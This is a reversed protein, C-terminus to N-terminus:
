LVFWSKQMDLAGKVKIVGEATKDSDTNIYVYTDKGAKEYRVQGAKTFADKGIFSFAQDGKKKMDSDILKLDIKDGGRGSFDTITDATAKSAGTDKNAFAFVDKGSGGSLLDKGAGGLIRDNGIGGDVKDNGAGANLVNNGGGGALTDTSAGGSLTDGATSGVTNENLVDNLVVTLDFTLSKQLREDIAQVKIVHTRATEYDLLIGNKVEVTRGDAGLQFRGGADNLLVYKTYASTADPNAVSLVGVDDGTKSNEAVIGNSLDIGSGYNLVQALNLTTGGFNFSEAELVTDIGDGSARQDVITVEGTENDFDVHYDSRRGGYVVTDNGLGGEIRDNGARGMIIDNGGDGRLRNDLSNGSIIDAHDSGRIRKINILTDVGGTADLVAAESGTGLDITLGTTRGAARAESRYDVETNGSGGEFTDNGGHGIFRHNGIGGKFTDGFRSGHVANINTFTDQGGNGDDTVVGALAQDDSFDVVIRASTTNRYNIENFADPNNNEAGGDITDNGGGGEIVDDGVGGNISDNGAGDQIIDNGAGGTITDNGDGGELRDHGDRGDLIYDGKDGRLRNDLGNGRLTDANETGRVREILTLTDTDGSLDTVTVTDESGLDVTVGATIEIEDAQELGREEARYDVENVGKTGDFLDNGEYGVFRQVGYTNGGYFKDAERTGLVAQIAYFTDTTFLTEGERKQVTGSGGNDGFRVEIDVFGRDFYRVENWNFDPNDGATLSGGFITDNGKSGLFYDEDTLPGTGGILLDNGEGGDLTDNGIGGDLTDNGSDGNLVDHGNAGDLRDNGDGGFHVNEGNHGAIHDNGHGGFALVVKNVIGTSVNAENILIFDDGFTGNVKYGGTDPDGFAHIGFATGIFKGPTQFDGDVSVHIAEINTLRDIGYGIATADVTWSGDANKAATVLTHVVEGDDLTFVISTETEQIGLTGVTSESLIYNMSGGWGAGGNITDNGADSTIYNVGGGANIVDDGFGANLGDDGNHGTITDNGGGAFIYVADTGKLGAILNANIVDDRGGGDINYGDENQYVSVGIQLKFSDSSSYFLIEDINSVTDTGLPSGERLDEITFQTPSTLTIKFIEQSIGGNTLKIRVETDSVYELGLTGTM